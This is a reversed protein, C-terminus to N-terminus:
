KKQASAAPSLLIASHFEILDSLKLRNLLFVAHEPLGDYILSLINVYEFLCSTRLVTGWKRAKERM